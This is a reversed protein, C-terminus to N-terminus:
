PQGGDWDTDCGDAVCDPCLATGDSDIQWGDREAHAALWRRASRYRVLGRWTIAECSMTANCCPCDCRLVYTMNITVPGLRM